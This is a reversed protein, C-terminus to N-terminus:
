DKAKTFMSATFEGSRILKSHGDVSTCNVANFHRLISKTWKRNAGKNNMIDAWDAASSCVTDTLGFRTTQWGYNLLPSLPPLVIGDQLLIMRSDALESLTCGRRQGNTVSGDALNALDTTMFYGCRGDWRPCEVTPGSPCSMVRWTRLYPKVAYSYTKHYGTPSTDSSYYWYAPPLTQNTDNAYMILGSYMQRENSLCAAQRAKEKASVFVPFLIAALIAIIAIVVLLEILTFGRNRTFWM